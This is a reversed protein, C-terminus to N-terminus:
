SPTVLSRIRRVMMKGLIRAEAMGRKDNKISGKEYSGRGIAAGAMIMKQIDFFTSFVKVASAGEGGGTAVVAAAVKNRLDREKRFVFTRDILAKAQATVGWFYVPTGFVFGDAELLKLYIGQMDDDLRCKKTTMCSECGDCPAINMGAITILEVEAGCEKASTLAEDVLIETNGGKRPSCVIGLVKM